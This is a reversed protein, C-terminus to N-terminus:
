YSSFCYNILINFFNLRSSIHGQEISWFFFQYKIKRWCHRLLETPLASSQSTFSKLEIELHCLIVSEFIELETCLTLQSFHPVVCICFFAIVKFHFLDLLDQNVHLHLSALKKTSWFRDFIEFFPVLIMQLDKLFFCTQLTQPHPEFISGAVGIEIKFKLHAHCTWNKLWVCM